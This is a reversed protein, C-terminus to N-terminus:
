WARSFTALQTPPRLAASSRGAHTWAQSQLRFSDADAHGRLAHTIAQDIAQALGADDVLGGQIRDPHHRAM